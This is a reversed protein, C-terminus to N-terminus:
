QETNTMWPYMKVAKQVRKTTSNTRTTTTNLTSSPLWPCGCPQFLTKPQSIKQNASSHTSCDRRKSSVSTTTTLTSYFSCSSSTSPLNFTLSDNSTSSLSTSTMMPPLSSLISSPQKPVEMKNNNTITNNSKHIHHSSKLNTNFNRLNCSSLIFSRRSNIICNTNYQQSSSTAITSRNRGSASKRVHGNHSRMIIAAHLNRANQGNGTLCLRRTSQFQM